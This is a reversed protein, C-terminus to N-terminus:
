FTTTRYMCGGLNVMPTHSDLLDTKVAGTGKIRLNMEVTVRQNSEDHNHLEPPNDDSTSPHEDDRFTTLNQENDEGAAQDTIGSSCNIEIPYLLQM